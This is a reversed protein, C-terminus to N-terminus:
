LLLSVLWFVLGFAAAVGLVGLTLYAVSKGWQNWWSLDPPRDDNV